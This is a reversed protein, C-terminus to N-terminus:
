GITSYTYLVQTIGKKKGSLKHVWRLEKKWKLNFVCRIMRSMKM